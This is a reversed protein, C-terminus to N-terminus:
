GKGTASDMLAEALIRAWDAQQDASALLDQRIEVEVYPRAPYAHRPVTYDIGDMAYPENDGVVLDRKERLADLVTRALTANGRDHLIGIQWPRAKGGMAPTFSHLAVLITEIGLGDRRALEAAIAHHYPEHIEAFRAARDEPRLGVNGPIRIGDSAEAIADPADLGRNCDVVLRSYAQSIFTADLREALLPGLGAIGIDWAIHREREAQDLGLTGLASPIANGAHDGILLFSAERGPNFMRVPPPDQPALLSQSPQGNM